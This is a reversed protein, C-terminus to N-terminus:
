RLEIILNTIFINNEITTSLMYKHHYLLELRRKINKLGIGSNTDTGCSKGAIENEVRFSLTSTSRDIALRISLPTGVGNGLGHKFANEVFPILLMPEIDYGELDPEIYMVMNLSDGFRLAQLEVYNKLYEVEKGLAIRNNNSEYLVYRMLASLQLLSPEMLDSKKRALAVLTNLVNFMFHPSIQSRLFSLETKLAETEQEKRKQEEVQQTAILRYSFSIAIIFIYLLFPVGNPPKHMPRGPDFNRGPGIRSGEALTSHRWEEQHHYPFLAAMRFTYRLYSSSYFLFVTTVLLSAVYMLWGKEQYVKPFLYYANFYFLAIIFCHDFIMKYKGQELYPPREPGLFYPFLLLIWFLIHVTYIIYRNSGWRSLQKM